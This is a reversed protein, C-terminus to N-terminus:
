TLNFDGRKSGPCTTATGGWGAQWSERVVWRSEQRHNAWAM